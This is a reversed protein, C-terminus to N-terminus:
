KQVEHGTYIVPLIREGDDTHQPFHAEFTVKLVCVEEDMMIEKHIVITEMVEAFSRASRLQDAVELWINEWAIKAKREIERIEEAFQIGNVLHLKM